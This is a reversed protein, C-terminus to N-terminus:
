AVVKRQEQQRHFQCCGYSIDQGAPTIREIRTLAVNAPQMRLNRAAPAVRPYASRRVFTSLISSAFQVAFRLRIEDGFIKSSPERSPETQTAGLQIESNSDSFSCDSGALAATYCNSETRESDAIQGMASRRATLVQIPYSDELHVATKCLTTM